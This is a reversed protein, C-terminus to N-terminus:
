SFVSGRGRVAMESWPGGGGQGLLRPGEEAQEARKKKEIRSKLKNVARKKKKVRSKQAKVEAQASKLDSQVSELESRVSGLEVRLRSVEESLNRKRAAADKELEERRRIAVDREANAASVADSWARRFGAMRNCTSELEAM